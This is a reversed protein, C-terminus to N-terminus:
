VLTDFPQLELRMGWREFVPTAEARVNLFECCKVPTWSFKSQHSMDKFAWHCFVTSYFLSSTIYMILNPNWELHLVFENFHIAHSLKHNWKGAKTSLLFAFIDKNCFNKVALDREEGRISGDLREYSYEAHYDCCCLQLHLFCHNFKQFALFNVFTYNSYKTSM